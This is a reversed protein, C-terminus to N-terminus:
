NSIFVPLINTFYICVSKDRLPEARGTLHFLFNTIDNGTIKSLDDPNEGFKFDLFRDVFTYCKYITRETLGRQRCLYTRYEAKLKERSQTKLTKM